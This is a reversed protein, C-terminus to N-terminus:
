SPRELVTPGTLHLVSPSHSKKKLPKTEYTRALIDMRLRGAAAESIRLPNQHYIDGLVLTSHLGVM